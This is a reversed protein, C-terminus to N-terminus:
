PARMHAAVQECDNPRSEDGRGEQDEVVHDEEIGVGQTFLVCECTM